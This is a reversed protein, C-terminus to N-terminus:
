LMVVVWSAEEPAEGSRVHRLTNGRVM